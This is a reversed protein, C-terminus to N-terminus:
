RERGFSRGEEWNEGKAQRKERREHVADRETTSPQQKPPDTAKARADGAPGLFSNNLHVPLAGAARTSSGMPDFQNTPPPYVWLAHEPAMHVSRVQLLLLPLRLSSSPSASEPTETSVMPRGDIMAKIWHEDDTMESGKLQKMWLSDRKWSFIECYETQNESELRIKLVQTYNLM